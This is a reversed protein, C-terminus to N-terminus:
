EEEIVLSWTRKLPLETKLEDDFKEYYRFIQEILQDQDWLRMSFFSDKAEKLVASNFGGWCVLLGYEANVRQMVGSLERMTRVDIPSDESKVQVCIRPQEFGLSGGAALIDIGGDPGEPSRRTVYGQAMLIADVLRTLNHGKFKANIFKVIQDKAYREIEITGESEINETTEDLARNEGADLRKGILRKVRLEANNREVKCITMPAFSYLIDQDFASRPLKKLWKVERIHKVDHRMENYEYDGLVEGLAVISQTKLPLAVLDGKPIGKVFRWIQGVENSATRKKNRPYTEEYIKQLDEKTGVKSLDPLENWGITILNKELAIGEQEGHKGARVMWLTM